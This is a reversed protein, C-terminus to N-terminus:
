IGGVDFAQVLGEGAANVETSSQEIQSFDLQGDLKLYRSIYRTNRIYIWPTALGLTIILLLLNSFILWIVSATTADVEFRMDQLYTHAAQYRLEAMMYWIMSIGLTPIILLLAILFKGFMDKGDGDYSFRQSGFQTHNMMYSNLNNNMIPTILGLTVFFLFTYGLTKFTYKVPSGALGFRISRWRTRTLKYRQAAYIAYPLLLLTLLYAFGYAVIFAVAITEEDYSMSYMIAAIVVGIIAFVMVVGFLVAMAILYGLFLEIGKGTYEFREDDVSTQSWLYRRIRTKAWFQYIGLTLINFIINVIFISFLETGSGHHQLRQASPLEM